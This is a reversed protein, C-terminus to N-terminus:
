WELVSLPAAALNTAIWDAQALEKADFSTTLALCKAGAAKAAEVGKIADEVVLCHSAPVGILSAAKLYIDPFPKNREVDLGNVLADFTDPPLGIERLNILMKTKDASTAVAMKLKHERCRTIFHNVGELPGVQRTILQEYIQHLRTKASTLELAVGYRQAVGGIYGGDGTGVFPLFDDPQVQLGKEAFLQIAAKCIFEESDILVGDMDFLVAEIM